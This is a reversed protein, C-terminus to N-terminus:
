NENITKSITNRNRAYLIIFLVIALVLFVFQALGASAADNFSSLIKELSDNEAAKKTMLIVAGRAFYGALLSFVYCAISGYMLFLNELSDSEKECSELFRCSVYFQAVLMGM